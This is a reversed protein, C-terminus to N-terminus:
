GGANWGGDVFLIQGTVFDSASGALFLAPGIIDEPTAFRGLKIRRLLREVRDPRQKLANMTFDTSTTTPALANVRIGQPAWETSLAATIRSVAGKAASYAAKGDDTSAAWTSSMNIIKGYGREIMLPAIARCCFFTAKAHVDFLRDWETEDTDLAAKTFGLGANNVLVLREDPRAFASTM